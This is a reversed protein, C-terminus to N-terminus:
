IVYALSVGLQQWLRPGRFSSLGTPFHVAGTGKWPRAPGARRGEEGSAPLGAQGGIIHLSRVAHM